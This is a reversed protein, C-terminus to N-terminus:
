AASGSALKLRTERQARVPCSLPRRCRAALPVARSPLDARAGASGAGSSPGPPRGLRQQAASRRLLSDDLCPAPWPAGTTDVVAPRPRLAPCVTLMESRNSLPQCNCPCRGFQDVPRWPVLPTHQHASPAPPPPPPPPPPPLGKRLAERAAVRAFYIPLQDDNHRLGFLASRRAARWAALFRASFIGTSSSFPIVARCAVTSRCPRFRAAQTAWGIVPRVGTRSCIARDAMSRPAGFITPRLTLSRRSLLSASGPAASSISPRSALRDIIAGIRRGNTSLMPMIPELLRVRGSAARCGRGKWTVPVLGLADGRPWTLGCARLPSRRRPRWPWAPWAGALAFVPFSLLGRLSQFSPEAIQGSVSRQAQSKATLHVAIANAVPLSPRSSISPPMM